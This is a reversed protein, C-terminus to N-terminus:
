QVTGTQEWSSCSIRRRKRSTPGCHSSVGKINNSSAHLSPSVDAIRNDRLGLWTITTDAGDFRYGARVYRYLYSTDNDRYDQLMEDTLKKMARPVKGPKGRVVPRMAGAIQSTKYRMLKERSLGSALCREVRRELLQM